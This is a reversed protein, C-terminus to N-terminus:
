EKSVDIRIGLSITGTLIKHRIDAPNEEKSNDFYKFEFNPFLFIYTHPYLKYDILGGLTAFYTKALAEEGFFNFHDVYSVGYWGLHMKANLSLPSESQPNFPMELLMYFKDFRFSESYLIYQDGTSRLVKLKDIYNYEFNIGIGFRLKSIPFCVDLYYQDLKNKAKFRLDGSSIISGTQDYVETNGLTSNWWSTGMGAGLSVFYKAHKRDLKTGFSGGTRPGRKAKSKQALVPAALFFLCFILVLKRM